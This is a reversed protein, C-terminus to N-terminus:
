ASERGSGEEAEEEELTKMAATPGNGRVM